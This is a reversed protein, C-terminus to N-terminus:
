FHLELKPHGRPWFRKAFTAGLSMKPGPDSTLTSSHAAFVDTQQSGKKGFSALSSFQVTWSILHLRVGLVENEESAEAEQQDHWPTYLYIIHSLNIRASTPISRAISNNIATTIIHAYVISQANEMRLETPLFSAAAVSVSLPSFGRSAVDIELGSVWSTGLTSFKARSSCVL